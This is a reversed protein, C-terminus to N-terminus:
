LFPAYFPNLQSLLLGESQLFIRETKSAPSVKTRSLKTGEGKSSKRVLRMKNRDWSVELKLRSKYFFLDGTQRDTHWGSTVKPDVPLNEKFKAPQEHWQLHGRCRLKFDRQKLWELIASTWVESTSAFHVQSRPPNLKTVMFLMGIKQSLQVWEQAITPGMSLGMRTCYHTGYKSGNKVITVTNPITFM